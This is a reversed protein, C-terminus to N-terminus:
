RRGGDIPVLTIVNLHSVIVLPVDRCAGWLLYSPFTPRAVTAGSIDCPSTTVSPLDTLWDDSQEQSVENTRIHIHDIHRSVTSGRLLSVEFTCHGLCRTITGPLWKQCLSLDCMYGLDDRELVRSKAHKDRDLKNQAQKQKVQDSLDPHLMNLHTRIRRGMLLEAPCAGTTMHTTIPHNFTLRAISKWTKM